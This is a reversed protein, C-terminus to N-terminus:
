STLNDSGGLLVKVKKKYKDNLVEFNLYKDSFYIFALKTIIVKKSAFEFGDLEEFDPKDKGLENLLRVIKEGIRTIRSGTIYKNWDSAGQGPNMYLNNQNIKSFYNNNDGTLFESDNLDSLKELPYNELFTNYENKSAEYSKELNNRITEKNEQYWKVFDFWSKSIDQKNSINRTKPSKIEQFTKNSKRKYNEFYHSLQNFLEELENEGYSKYGNDDVSNEKQEKQYRVQYKNGSTIEVVQVPSGNKTIIWITVLSQTEGGLFYIERRYEEHKLVEDFEEETSIYKLGEKELQKRLKEFLKFQEVKPKKAM